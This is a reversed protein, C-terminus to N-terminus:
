LSRIRMPPHDCSAFDTLSTLRSLQYISPRNSITSPCRQNPNATELQPPFHTSQGFRSAHRHCLHRSCSITCLPFQRQIQAIPGPIPIRTPFRTAVLIPHHGLEPVRRRLQALFRFGPRSVPPPLPQTIDWTPSVDACNPWSDSDPDPFPNKGPNTAREPRPWIHAIPDPMM